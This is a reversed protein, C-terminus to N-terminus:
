VLIFIVAIHGERVGEVYLHETAVSTMGVQERGFSAHVLLRGHCAHLRAFGATGTVISIISETDSPIAFLTM